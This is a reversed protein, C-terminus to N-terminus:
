SAGDPDIEVLGASRLDRVLELLDARCTEAEVDYEELLAREIEAITTGGGLLEWVRVGTGRLGHYRGTEVNLIVTEDGVKSSVQAAAPKVRTDPTMSSSGGDPRTM